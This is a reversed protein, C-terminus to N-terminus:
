FGTMGGTDESSGKTATNTSILTDYSITYEKDNPQWLIYEVCGNHFKPRLSTPLGELSGVFEAEKVLFMGWYAEGHYRFSVKILM